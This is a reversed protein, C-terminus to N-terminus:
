DNTKGDYGGIKNIRYKDVREKFIFLTLGIYVLM